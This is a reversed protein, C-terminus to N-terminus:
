IMTASPISQPNECVSVTVHRLRHVTYTTGSSYMLVQHRVFRHQIHTRICNANVREFSPKFDKTFLAAFRSYKPVITM